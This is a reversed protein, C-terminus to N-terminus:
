EIAQVIRQIIRGGFKEQSEDTFNAETSNLKLESWDMPDSYYQIPALYGDRQLEATEIKYAISKFFPTRSIRNIMKLSATSKLDGGPLREWLTDIRYPTATLGVIHECQIAKFFSTLMGDQKKPNVGHCEDVIAYKFHEFEEPKKYISGITSFTFKRIEKRGKSASYIGADILPDYSILKAYNQELIEKSPQLILIPEDIRHCIEAIILSKGAGTAAQIIFPKNTKPSKLKKVAIGVAEDQYDRLKYM